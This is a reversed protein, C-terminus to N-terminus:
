LQLGAVQLLRLGSVENVASHEATEVGFLPKLM